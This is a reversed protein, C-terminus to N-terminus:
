LTGMVLTRRMVNFNAQASNMTFGKFNVNKIRGEKEVLRTLSFWMFIQSDVDEFQM